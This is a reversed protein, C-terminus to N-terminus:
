RRGAASRLIENMSAGSRFRGQEDRERDDVAIGLERAMQKADDRLERLSGGILRQAHQEPLGAEQAIRTRLYSLTEADLGEAM